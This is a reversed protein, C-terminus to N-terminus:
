IKNKTLKDRIYRLKGVDIEDIDDFRLLYALGCVPCLKIEEGRCNKVKDYIENSEIVKFCNLCGYYKLQTKELDMKIM